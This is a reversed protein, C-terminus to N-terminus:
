DGRFLPRALPTHAEVLLDFDRSTDLSDIREVLRTISARVLKRRIMSVCDSERGLADFRAMARKLKKRLNKTEVSKGKM